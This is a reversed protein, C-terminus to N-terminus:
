NGAFFPTLVGSVLDFDRIRNSGAISEGCRENMAIQAIARQLCIPSSALRTPAQTALWRPPM